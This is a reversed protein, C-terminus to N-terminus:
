QFFNKLNLAIVIFSFNDFSYRELTNKIIMYAFNGCLKHIDENKISDNIKKEKIVINFCELLEENNM